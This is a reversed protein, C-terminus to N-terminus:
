HRSARLPAREDLAAPGDVREAQAGRVRVQQLAGTELLKHNGADVIGQLAVQRVRARELESPPLRETQSNM